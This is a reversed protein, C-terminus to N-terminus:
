FHVGAVQTNVGVFKIAHYLTIMPRDNLIIQEAAHYLTRRAQTTMAKRGRNLILDLRPNSYGSRNRSGSTALWIYINIDPDVGGGPGGMYTDYSGATARSTVTALDTSDIVVNIGVAAGQAQVFQALRLNDTGSTLLHVT